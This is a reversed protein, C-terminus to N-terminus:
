TQAGLILVSILLVIVPFLVSAVAARFLWTHRDEMSKIRHDQQAEKLDHVEKRVYDEKMERILRDIAERTSKASAEIARELRALDDALEAPEPVRSM